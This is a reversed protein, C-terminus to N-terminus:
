PSIISLKEIKDITLKYGKGHVNVIKISVDESIKKRLKSVLVDVNRDIVMVGEDEWLAKRLKDREVVFNLSSFFISLAKSEKESLDITKDDLVLIGKLDFFKFKGLQKYGLGSIESENNDFLPITENEQVQLEELAQKNKRHYLYFGVFAIPIFAIFLWAKPYPNEALFEIQILYCGRDQERGGCPKLDGNFTNIEYAFITKHENCDKVSVIYDDPMDTKALQQHVLSMLTDPMFGLSSEFSIQYTNDNIATVPLVRSTSDKSHLLLQHGINRLVVELHKDQHGNKVNVFAFFSILIILVFSGLLLYYIRKM